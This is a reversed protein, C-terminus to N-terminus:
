ALSRECAAIASKRGANDPYVKSVLFADDRRGAIAHAVIEEAGGDGYIEATDILTMGLDFGVRLAAIEQEARPKREGMTWTGLGLAPVKSGDRLSVEPLPQMSGQLLRALDNACRANDRMRLVGGSGQHEHPAVDNRQTLM